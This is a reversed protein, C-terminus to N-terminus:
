VPKIIKSADPNKGICTGEKWGMNKLMMMGFNSVPVDFNTDEGVINSKDYRQM